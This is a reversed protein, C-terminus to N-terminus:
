NASPFHFTSEASTVDDPLDDKHLGQRQQSTEPKSTM